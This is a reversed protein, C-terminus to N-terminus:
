LGAHGVSIIVAANCARISWISACVCASMCDICAINSLAARCILCIGLPRWRSPCTVCIASCVASWNSATFSKILSAPACSSLIKECILSRGAVFNFRSLYLSTRVFSVVQEIQRSVDGMLSPSRHPCAKWLAHIIGHIRTLVILPLNEQGFQLFCFLM